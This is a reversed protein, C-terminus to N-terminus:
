EKGQVALQAGYLSLFIVSLFYLIDRSDFVGKAINRFHFDAGIYQIVNLLTRPFFFLMKDILTLSFCIAMGVIFAVIQNRTLSSAWLGIAAYTTGLLLAGIYGGLVPGWDLPGLLAVTVPYAATPLLMAAVLAVAALHKGIVVDAYTVPLTLLIEYSGVNREEALLRMTFAPVVFAFIMPLLDFFDRLSAQGILFFPTFFFWGTALLFVTIILYAIPSIFYDRFERTMIYFVPPM